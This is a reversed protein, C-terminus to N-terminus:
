EDLDDPDDSEGSLGASDLEYLAKDVLDCAVAAVDAYDVEVEYLAAERLCTLVALAKQLRRMERQIVKEVKTRICGTAPVVVPPHTRAQNASSRARAPITSRFAEAVVRPDSYKRVSAPNDSFDTTIDTPSHPCRHARSMRGSSRSGPQSTQAICRRKFV